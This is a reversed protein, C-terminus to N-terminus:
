FYFFVIIWSKQEHRYRNIVEAIHLLSSRVAKEGLGTDLYSVRHYLRAGQVMILKGGKNKLRRIMDLDEGYLPFIPDFYELLTLTQKPMLYCCGQIFDIEETTQTCDPATGSLSTMYNLSHQFDIDTFIRPSYITRDVPLIAQSILQYICDSQFITDQNLFMIYDYHSQSVHNIGVNCARSYGINSKSTRLIQTEFSLGLLVNNIKLPNESNDVIIVKLALADIKKSNEISNLLANIYNEGNYYPIIIQLNM